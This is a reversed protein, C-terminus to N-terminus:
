KARWFSNWKRIAIECPDRRQNPSKYETIVHRCRTCEITCREMGQLSVSSVVPPFKCIPCAMVQGWRHEDDKRKRPM